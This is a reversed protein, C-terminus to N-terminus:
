KYINPDTPNWTGRNDVSKIQTPSFAVIFLKGDPYKHVFGDYGLKRCRITIEDKFTNDNLSMGDNIISLMLHQIENTTIPNKISLYVSYFKNGYEKTESKDSTFYFGSGFAGRSIKSGDFVDFNVDSGHYVVMPSGDPNVVKSDGFWKWFNDNLNTENEMLYQIISKMKNGSTKM